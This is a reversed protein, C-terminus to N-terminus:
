ADIDGVIIDLKKLFVPIDETSVKALTERFLDRLAEKKELTLTDQGKGASSKAKEKLYEEVGLIKAYDKVTNRIEAWYGLVIREYAPNNDVNVKKLDDLKGQIEHLVNLLTANVDLLNREVDTEIIRKGIAGEDFRVAVRKDGTILDTSTVNSEPLEGSESEVGPNNKKITLAISASKEKLLDKYARIDSEKIYFDMKEDAPITTDSDVSNNVWNVIKVAPLDEFCMKDIQKRYKNTLIKEYKM